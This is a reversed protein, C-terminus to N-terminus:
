DRGHPTTQRERKGSIDDPAVNEVRANETAGSKINGDSM